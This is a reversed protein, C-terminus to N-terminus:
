AESQQDEKNYFLFVAVLDEAETRFTRVCTRYAGAKASEVLEPRLSSMARWASAPVKGDSRIREAINCKGFVDRSVRQKLSDVSTGLIELMMTATIDSERLAPGEGSTFIFIHELAEPSM